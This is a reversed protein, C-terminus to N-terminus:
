IKQHLTDSPFIVNGLMGKAMVQLSIIWHSKHILLSDSLLRYSGFSSRLTWRPDGHFWNSHHFTFFVLMSKQLTNCISPSQSIVKEVVLINM